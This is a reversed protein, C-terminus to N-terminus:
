TIQNLLPDITDYATQRSSTAAQEGMYSRLINVAYHRWVAKAFPAKPGDLQTGRYGGEKALAEILDQYAADPISFTVAVPM